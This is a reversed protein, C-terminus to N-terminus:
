NMEMGEIKKNAEVIDGFKADVSSRVKEHGVVSQNKGKRYKEMQYDMVRHAYIVAERVKSEEASFKNLPKRYNHIIAGASVGTRNVAVSVSKKYMEVIKKREADRETGKELDRKKKEEEREKKKAEEVQERRLEESKIVSVDRIEIGSSSNQNEDKRQFVRWGDADKLSEDKLSVRYFDFLATEITDKNLSFFEAGEGPWSYYFHPAKETNLHDFSQNLIINDGNRVVEVKGNDTMCGYSRIKIGDLMGDEAILVMKGHIKDGNSKEVNGTYPSELFVVPFLYEDGTGKEYRPYMGFGAINWGKCTNNTITKM